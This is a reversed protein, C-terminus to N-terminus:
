PPKRLSGPLKPAIRKRRRVFNLRVLDRPSTAGCYVCVIESAVNRTEHTVEAASVLNAGPATVSIDHHTVKEAQRARFRDQRDANNRAGAFTEQYRQGAVALSV